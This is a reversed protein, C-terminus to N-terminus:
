KGKTTKTADKKLELLKSPFHNPVMTYPDAKWRIYDEPHITYDFKLVGNEFSTFKRTIKWRMYVWYNKGMVDEYKLIYHFFFDQSKGVLETKNSTAFYLSDLGSIVKNNYFSRPYKVDYIAPEVRDVFLNQKIAEKLKSSATDKWALIDIRRERSIMDMEIGEILVPVRSSQYYKFWINLANSGPIFEIDTIQLALFGRFEFEQQRRIEILNCILFVIAIFSGFGGAITAVNKWWSISKMKSLFKEKFWPHKLEENKKEESM